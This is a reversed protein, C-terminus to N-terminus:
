AEAPAEEANETAAAAAAEEAAKRAAEALEEAKKAIAEAREANVKKEAELAVKAKDAADKVLGAKKASIKADRLAKWENWKKDSNGLYGREGGAYLNLVGTGSITSSFYAYRAMLVNVTDGQQITLATAYTKATKDTNDGSIDITKNEAHAQSLAMLVLLNTILYKKM